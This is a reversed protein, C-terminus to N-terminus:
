RKGEAKKSGTRGDTTSFRETDEGKRGTERKRDRSRGIEM